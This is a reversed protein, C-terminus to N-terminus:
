QHLRRVHTKIIQDTIIVINSVYNKLSFTLKNQIKSYALQRCFPMCRLATLAIFFPFAIKKDLNKPEKKDVSFLIPIIKSTEFMWLM